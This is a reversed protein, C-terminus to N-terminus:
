GKTIGHVAREVGMCRDEVYLMGAAEALQRAEASVIGQQLWLAKAGIGVAAKAVAAAEESPRFVLVVEVSFPVDALSAYSKEGLLTDVHPNVPIIRFGARQMRAPIAHAAKSPDRSLGVVAVSRFERLIRETTDMVIGSM